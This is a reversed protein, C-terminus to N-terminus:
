CSKNKKNAERLSSPPSLPQERVTPTSNEWLVCLVSERERTGACDQKQSSRKKLGFLCYGLEGSDLSYVIPCCVGFHALFM